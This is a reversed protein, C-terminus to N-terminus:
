GNTKWVRIEMELGAAKLIQRLTGVRRDQIDSDSLVWSEREDLVIPENSEEGVYISLGKLSERKPEESMLLDAAITDKKIPISEDTDRPNHETLYKLDRGVSKETRHTGETEAKLNQEITDLTKRAERSAEQRKRQAKRPSEYGHAKARHINLKRQNDRVEDCDPCKLYGEHDVAVHVNVKEQSIFQKPCDVYPCPFKETLSLAVEEDTMELNMGSPHKDGRNYRAIDERLYKASNKNRSVSYNTSGDPAFLMIHNRNSRQARWGEKQLDMIISITDGPFDQIDDRTVKLAEGVRM